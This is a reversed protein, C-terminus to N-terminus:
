NKYKNANNFKDFAVKCHDYKKFRYDAFKNYFYNSIERIVPLSVLKSIINWYNIQRWIIIFADVGTRINGNNDQVHMKKLAQYHEINISELPKPDNAIDIWLFINKPSVKRYYDIEKKCLGCKGDFYVKIM